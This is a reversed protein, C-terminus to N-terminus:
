QPFISSLSSWQQPAGNGVDFTNRLVNVMGWMSVIIFFGILSWLLYTSAATRSGSSENPIVFYKIVFYVFALVAFGMLGLLIDNMYGAISIFLTKLTKEAALALAPLSAIAMAAISTKKNVINNVINM